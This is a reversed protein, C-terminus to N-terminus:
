SGIRRHASALTTRLDGFLTGGELFVRVIDDITGEERGCM